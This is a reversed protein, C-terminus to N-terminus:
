YVFSALRVDITRWLLSKGILAVSGLSRPFFVGRKGKPKWTRCLWVPRMCLVSDLAYLRLDVPVGIRSWKLRVDM